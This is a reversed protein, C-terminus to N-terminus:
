RRKKGFNFSLGTGITASAGAVGIPIATNVHLMVADSFGFGISLGALWSSGSQTSYEPVYSVTPDPNTLRTIGYVFSLSGAAVVQARQSRSAVVGIGMSVAVDTLTVDRVLQGDGYYDLSAGSASALSIIPCITVTRARYISVEAGAAGGVTFASGELGDAQLTGLGVQGFAGAGGIALGAGFARAHQNFSAGGSVQVPGRAFPASGACVQGGAVAPMVAVAAVILLPLRRALILETM